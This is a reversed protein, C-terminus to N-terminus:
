TGEALKVLYKLITHSGTLREKPAEWMRRVVLAHDPRLKVYGGGQNIYEVLGAPNAFTDNRFRIVAGKPGADVSAVNARRCLLKIAVIELLHEVEEPIPGFRDRLEAGFGDIQQQEELDALRRYLGMRVQLDDIYTEPLLVSTGVNITPSWKEEDVDEDGGQRLSAVAEELMEQYLEFGVERIHGSQEEGILNGAGRIDLDHSALSFGAGLSDLSQLVQLRKEAAPTLVKGAPVTM